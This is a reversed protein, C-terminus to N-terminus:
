KKEVDSLVAYAILPLQWPPPTTVGGAWNQLTRLPMGLSRALASVSLGCAAAISGITVTGTSGMQWVARALNERNSAGPVPLSDAFEAIFASESSFEASDHLLQLFHHYRIM